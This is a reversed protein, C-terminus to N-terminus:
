SRWMRYRYSSDTSHRFALGVAPIMSIDTSIDGEQLLTNSKLAIFESLEITLSCSWLYWLDNLDVRCLM